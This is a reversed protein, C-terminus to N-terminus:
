FVICVERIQEKFFYNKMFDNIHIHSTNIIIM